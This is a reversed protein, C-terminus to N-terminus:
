SIYGYEILQNWMSNAIKAAKAHEKWYERIHITYELEAEDRETGLPLANLNNTLIQITKYTAKVKRISNELETSGPVLSNFHETTVSVQDLHPTIVIAKAVLRRFNWATEIFELNNAVQQLSIDPMCLVFNNFLGYITM